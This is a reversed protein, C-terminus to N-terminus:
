MLFRYNLHSAESYLEKCYTLMYNLLVSPFGKHYCSNCSTNINRAFFLIRPPYNQAKPSLPFFLYSAQCVNLLPLNLSPIIVAIFLYGFVSELVLETDIGLYSFEWNKLSDGELFSLTKTNSVINGTPSSPAHHSFSIKEPWFLWCCLCSVSLHISFSNYKFIGHFIKPICNYLPSPQFSITVFPM